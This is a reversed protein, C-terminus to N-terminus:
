RGTDEGARLAQIDHIFRLAMAAVQRAEGIARGCDDAKVAEWMRNMEINLEDIEELLIAWGEHGSRMPPFKETAKYLELTVEAIIPSYADGFPSGELDATSDPIGHMTRAGLGPTSM